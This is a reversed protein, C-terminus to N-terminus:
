SLKIAEGMTTKCYVSSIKSAPIQRELGNLVATINEALDEDPLDETGIPVHITPNKKSRIRVTNKLNGIIPKLDVSPPVPQPMKGLPGLVIGWNKGVLPMLDPQSIFWYCERCFKRMKRRSKAYEEIEAKNLVYDSLKKGRLNMDGDAFIGVNVDKGRGKPLQVKLDLKYESSQINIDEFNVCLEVSQKFKRTIGAKKAEKVRDIIEKKDM